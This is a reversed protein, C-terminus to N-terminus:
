TDESPVTRVFRATIKTPVLMELRTLVVDIGGKLSDFEPDEEFHALAVTHDLAYKTSSLETFLQQLQAESSTHLLIARHVRKSFRPIADRLTYFDEILSTKKTPRQM